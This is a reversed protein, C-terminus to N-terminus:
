PEILPPFVFLCVFLCYFYSMLLHRPEWQWRIPERLLLTEM